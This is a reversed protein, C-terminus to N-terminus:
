FVREEPQLTFCFTAGKNVESEAWIRGGHRNIIRQVTALGIGIGPFEDASHLRQFPVFLKNAFEMDFGAGNDKICYVPKGDTLRVSFAIKTDPKKDSYKWANEMLNEIVVQLLTPDGEATVDEGILFEVKREPHRKTLDAAVLKALTSLNVRSRSLPGFAFRSMDLLADIFQSMKQAAAQVRLMYERGTDDLITAYDELLIRLFGDIHRLPARLDHSIASAFQELDKNSRELEEKAEILRQESQKRETADRVLALVVLDNEMQLPGLSIDVPFEVGDKRRGYLELGTGMPRVHPDAMFGRRHEMHKERFREPLLIDHDANLLEERTYGFMRETQKNVQVTRGERNVVVIAEPAFEFLGEFMAKTKKLEEAYREKDEKIKELENIKRRLEILDKILQEKTLDEPTKM